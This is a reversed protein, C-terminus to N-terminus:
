RSIVKWTIQNPATGDTVTNAPLAPVTPQTAGSTGGVTAQLVAGGTLKVQEGVTYATATVWSSPAAPHAIDYRRGQGSLTIKASSLAEMSGGQEAYSVGVLGRYAQVRPGSVGNWEYARVEAVNGPGMQLSRLRLYEQADDYTVGDADVKRMVTLEWGWGMATVSSSKWGQSDYTSSDQTDPDESPSQDTIGRIRVWDPTDSIGYNFNVDIVWKRALTDAGLTIPNELNSVTASM